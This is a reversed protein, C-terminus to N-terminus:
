HQSHTTLNGLHDSLPKAIFSKVLFKSFTIKCLENAPNVRNSILHISYLALPPQTCFSKYLTSSFHLPIPLGEQQIVRNPSSGRAKQVGWLPAQTCSSGSCGKSWLPKHRLFVNLLLEPHIWLKFRPLIV